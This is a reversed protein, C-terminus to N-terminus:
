NKIFKVMESNGVEDVIRIFYMGTKYGALNLSVTEQYNEPVDIIEKVSGYSDFLSYKGKFNDTSINFEIKTTVLNSGVIGIRTIPKVVEVTDEILKAEYCNEITDGNYTILREGSEIIQNVYCRRPDHIKGLIYIGWKDVTFEKAYTESSDNLRLHYDEELERETWWSWYRFNEVKVDHLEDITFIRWYRYYESNVVRTTLYEEGSCLTDIGDFEINTEWGEEGGRNQTFGFLSSVVIFATLLTRM